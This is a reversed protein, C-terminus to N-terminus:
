LTETQKFEKQLYILVLFIKLTGFRNKAELKQKGGVGWTKWKLHICLILSM